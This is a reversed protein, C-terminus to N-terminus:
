SRNATRWQKLTLDPEHTWIEEDMGDFKVNVKIVDKRLKIGVQELFYGRFRLQRSAMKATEYDVDIVRETAIYNGEGITRELGWEFVPAEEAAFETIDLHIDNIQDRHKPHLAYLWPRLSFKKYFDFTTLQFHSKAFKERSARSVQLASPPQYHADVQHLTPGASFTFDCIMIQLELPLDDLRKQSEAMTM